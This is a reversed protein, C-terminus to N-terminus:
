KPFLTQFDIRMGTYGPDYGPLQALKQKLVPSNLLGLMQVIRVDEILKVPLALCYHEWVEPIFDLQFQEAIAAIGFGADAAGSAIMAAVAMHTFEENEYGNIQNPEIKKQKLLQDLLLRTGSGQQRNIFRHNDDTLSQISRISKPNGRQVMLGQSRRVLSFILHKEPDLFVLYNSKLKNGLDGEPIHFGAIDCDGAALAQLSTLSGQVKLDIRCGGQQNALDRLPGLSLCHSASITLSPPQDCNLVSGLEHKFRHAYRDLEPSLEAQLQQDADLLKKGLLTLSAGRGQQMAVLPRGLRKEWKMLLGWAHRYSVGSKEAAKKLSGDAQISSLLRFLLPDVSEEETYRITWHLSLKIDM